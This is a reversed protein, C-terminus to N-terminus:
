SHLTTYISLVKRAIKLAGFYFSACLVIDATVITLLISRFIFKKPQIYNSIITPCEKLLHKRNNPDFSSLAM